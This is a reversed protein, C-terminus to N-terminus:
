NEKNNAALWEAPPIGERSKFAHSLSSKSAYGCAEAVAQLSYDPHELMIRKAEEIRLYPLWQRYNKGRLRGFASPTAAAHHELYYNLATASIGMEQLAVAITVNANTYRREAVWQEIRQQTDSIADPHLIATDNSEKEMMEAETIEDTVEILETMNNGYIIFQAIYWILMGMVVLGYLSNLLFSPSMGIWPTTLSVLIVWHMSRATYHLAQHRDDLTDDTLRTSVVKMDRLLTHSLELLKISYCVAVAFTATRWPAADNTLTGTLAGAVFIAYCIVIFISNAWYRRRMNRGARLLNQESINYLPTILVYFALNITWCLTPSSERYHGFFQILNHIGLLLSAICIYRRSSDYVSSKGKGRNILAVILAIIIMSAAGMFRVGTIIDQEIM